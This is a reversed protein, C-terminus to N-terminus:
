TLRKVHPSLGIFFWGVFVHAFYRNRNGAINSFSLIDLGTQGGGGTAIMLIALNSQHRQRPLPNSFDYQMRRSLCDDDNQSLSSLLLCGSINIGCHLVM